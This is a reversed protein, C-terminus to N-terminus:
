KWEPIEGWDTDDPRLPRATEEMIEVTGDPFTHSVLCAEGDLARQRADEENDAFVKVYLHQHVIAKQDLVVVYLHKMPSETM